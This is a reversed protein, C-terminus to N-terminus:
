RDDEAMYMIEITCSAARIRVAVEDPLIQRVQLRGAEPSSIALNPVYAYTQYFVTAYPREAHARFASPAYISRSM